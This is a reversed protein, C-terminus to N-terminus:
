VTIVEWPHTMISRLVQKRKDEVTIEVPAQTGEKILTNISSLADANTNLAGKKYV